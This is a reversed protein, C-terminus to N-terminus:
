AHSSREALVGRGILSTLSPPTALDARVRRETV